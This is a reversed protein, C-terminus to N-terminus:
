RSTCPQPASARRKVSRSASFGAVASTAPTGSRSCTPRGPKPRSSADPSPARARCRRSLPSRIVRTCAPKAAVTRFRSSSLVARPPRTAGGRPRWSPRPPQRSTARSLRPSCRSSTRIRCQVSRKRTQSRTTRRLTSPQSTLRSPHRGSGATRCRSTTRVSRSLLVTTSGFLCGDFGLNGVSGGGFDRLLTGVAGSVTITVPQRISGDIRYWVSRTKFNCFHQEGPEVGADELDASDSFPLAGILSASAFADNSPPAATAASPSVLVLATAIVVLTSRM